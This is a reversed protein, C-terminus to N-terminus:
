QYAEEGEAGAPSVFTASMMYAKPEARGTKVIDSIANACESVWSKLMTMSVLVSPDKIPAGNMVIRHTCAILSPPTPKPSGYKTDATLILQPTCSAYQNEQLTYIEKSCENDRAQSSLETEERAV